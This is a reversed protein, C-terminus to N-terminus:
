RLAKKSIMEVELENNEAKTIRFHIDKRKNDFQVNNLDLVEFNQEAEVVKESIIDTMEEFDILNIRNACAIEGNERNEPYYKPCSYFLSDPGRQITMPVHQGKHCGCTLTIHRWINLITAKNAM